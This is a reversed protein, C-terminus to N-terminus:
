VQAADSINRTEHLGEGPGIDRIMRAPIGAAIVNAFNQAQTTGM